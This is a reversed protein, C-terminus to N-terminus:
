TLIYKKYEKESWAKISVGSFYKKLYLYNEMAKSKANYFTPTAGVMNVSYVIANKIM